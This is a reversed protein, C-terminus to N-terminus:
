NKRSQYYQYYVKEVLETIVQYNLVFPAHRISIRDLLEDTTPYTSHCSNIDSVLALDLHSRTVPPELIQSLNHDFLTDIFLECSENGFPLFIGPLDEDARWNILPMNFDGVM